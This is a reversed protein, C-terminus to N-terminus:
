HCEESLKFETSNFVNGSFRLKRITVKSIVPLIIKQHLKLIWPFHRSLKSCCNEVQWSLGLMDPICTVGSNNKNCVFSFTKKCGTQDTGQGLLEEHEPIHHV